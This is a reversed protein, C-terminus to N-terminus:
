IAEGTVSRIRHKGALEVDIEQLRLGTASPDEIPVMTKNQMRYAQDAVKLLAPQHSIALITIKEGIKQMTECIAAENEPDLATTAEDLILLKPKHVLARAIAIRQRQGGSFKHGREGVVSHIGQPLISVFEWAGAARLAEEINETTIDEDGLTVNMSISDHLLLTDQPVYGIMQRWKILDIKELPVGDIYIEGQKPRLLGTVLDIVTTKGVGSPGVIATFSGAPFRISVNELILSEDYAFSVNDLRISRCLTPEDTGTLSERAQQAIQTKNKLSWFASEVKVMSQYLSQVKQLRKLLKSLLFMVMFVNTLPFNWHVLAIYLGLALFAVSVPEQLASLAESAFVQKKLAKKLDRTKLRLVEDALHERAMTKLPKIMIFSDTMHAVLSQLLKTQRNGSQRAKTIFLKFMYLIVLGAGIAILTAQWSIMLVIVAYVIANVLAAIISIVCLYAKSARNAETAVANTFYGVPQCIFYEWRTRFLARILELRLDTAVRAATYGIRKNATLVLIAKFVMSAVFVILLTGITPTLGVAGFIERVIQELNSASHSVGTVPMTEKGGIVIAFLPVLASLGFGESIGAFILALVALASQLPYTRFFVILLRM